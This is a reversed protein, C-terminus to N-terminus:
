VTPFYPTEFAKSSVTADKFFGTKVQCPVDDCMRCYFVARCFKCEDQSRFEPPQVGEISKCPTPVYTKSLSCWGMMKQCVRPTLSM